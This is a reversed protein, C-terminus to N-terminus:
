RANSFKFPQEAFAMYIYTRGSTNPYTANRIKFGNSLFDLPYSSTLDSEAGNTNAYLYQGVVNDVDRKNDLIYWNEGSVSSAKFMVWAPRFGTYVFTGDSSGNGTYSGFKSYGEIEAFVYAVYTYSSSNNVAVHTGVSFVTTTPETNNWRDTNTGSNQAQTSQLALYKGAGLTGHYNTWSTGTHSRAKVIIHSPKKGLGHGITGATGTGTYTVISFGAETSAQVTSTITGDTNSSTTGGNAKWSWGVYNNSTKNVYRADTSGKKLTFGNSLFASVGGYVTTSTHNVGLGEPDTNNSTLATNISSSVGRSSDHLIHINGASRNKIWSWDPQFGYSTIDRTSSSDGSWIVTNFYDSANKTQNPSLTTDPLNSSCLALYGSPPTYYFDGIGNGDTNGQATENGAFSSDAGFNAIGGKGAVGNGSVAPFWNGTLGTFATGQTSNNKYFTIEGDDMNLAVGIIDGTTYTAGYSVATGSTAGVKQGATNYAYGSGTSSSGIYTQMDHTEDVIGIYGLAGGENRVEWYWKGSSVGFTGAVSQAVTANTVGKLNGESTTINTGKRLINWTCWNNTPSDLVVDTSTLGNVSFNHGEGSQDDGINTQATTGQSTTGTGTAEFTLRCGNNGFTGSYAKPVAVGNKQECFTALTNADALFTSNITGSTDSFMSQGDVFYFESLYGSLNGYNAHLGNSYSGIRHKIASNMVTFDHNQSPFTSYTTYGGTYRKGNFFIMVRDTDTAQESDVAVCVHMWNTPDRFLATTKLAIKASNGEVTFFKFSDDPHIYGDSAFGMLFYNFTTSLPASYMIPTEDGLESPKIWTAIIVKRTSSPTVFTRELYPTDGENFRLSQDITEPYFGTGGVAGAGIGLISM